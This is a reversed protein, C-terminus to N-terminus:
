ALAIRVLAREVLALCGAAFYNPEYAAPSSKNSRIAISVNAARAVPSSDSATVALVEIGQRGCDVCDQWLAVGSENFVLALGRAGRDACARAIAPSYPMATFGLEGLRYILLQRCIEADGVGHVLVPDDRHRTLADVMLSIGDSRRAASSAASGGDLYRGLQDLMDAWGAYGYRKAARWVASRSVGLNEAVQSVTPREGASLADRVAAYVERDTPTPSSPM